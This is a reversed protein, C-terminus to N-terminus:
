RAAIAIEFVTDELCTVSIPQSLSIQRKSKM